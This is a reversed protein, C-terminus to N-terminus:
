LKENKKINFKKHWNEVENFISIPRIKYLCDSKGHKNDCGALGCAVCPMDAQFITNKSYTQVPMDVTASTKLENSWPSWMKLNTPGFIAFIRKNQSAAIHMNLTDMGIYSLSFQSLAFYEELTLLGIFDYLNKLKPLEKKIELDLKNKSGTIVIPIELTNLEILLKDRLHKPYIKFDYQASPHFIIFKNIKKIELLRKVKNIAQESVEPFNNNLEQNINLLNLPEINNLLIHKDTDFYYFYTLFIKKWWSKQPQKEIASISKKGALISYIVSRDSATLNISLDYQRFIKQIIKKEQRWHKERKDKYSFTHIFNINPLLKAIAITDDNVLLDIQPQNFNKFLSTILSHSLLVDGNARQIIILIKNIKKM